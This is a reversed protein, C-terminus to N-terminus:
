RTSSVAYHAWPSDHHAADHEQLDRNINILREGSCPQPRANHPPRILMRAIAFQDM